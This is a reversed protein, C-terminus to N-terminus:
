LKAKIKELLERSLKQDGTGVRVTIRSLREGTTHSDFEITTETSTTVSLHGDTKTVNYVVETYHMDQSVERAAAIAQDATASVTTSYQGSFLNEEVDKETTYCAGLTATSIALVFAIVLYKHM